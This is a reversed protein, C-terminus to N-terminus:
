LKYNKISKKLNLLASHMRQEVAKVSIDLMEAIERYKKKEIRNLLFVERQKPSLNNIAATLEKRFEKERLVFEPDEHNVRSDSKTKQYKLVVKQHDLENFFANKVLTLLYSKAKEIPVKACNNWLKIFADQTLDEAQKRNGCKSYIFNNVMKSYNRYVKEFIYKECISALSQSM